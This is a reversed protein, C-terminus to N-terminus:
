DALGSRLAGCGDATHPGAGSPFTPMFEQAKPLPHESFFPHRLAARASIRQTPNYTLLRNLLDIGLISLEPFRQMPYPPHPELPLDQVGPEM